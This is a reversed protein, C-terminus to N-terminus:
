KFHHYFLNEFMSQLEVADIVVARSDVVLITVNGDEDNVIVERNITLYKRKFMKKKHGFYALDNSIIIFYTKLCQSYGFYALNNSIIIFNTKL